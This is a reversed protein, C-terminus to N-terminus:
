EDLTSGSVATSSTTSARTGEEYILEVGSNVYVKYGQGPKLEGIQDINYSPIYGAGTQDKVMVLENVISGLADPPSQTAGPYYPVFNWGESLAIPSDVAIATGSLRLTDASTVYVMYSEGDSWPGIDNTGNEPRYENGSEDRVIEVSSVGGFVSPMDPSDPAVHSSILNWGAALPIAQITTTGDRNNAIDEWSYPLGNGSYNSANAEPWMPSAWDEAISDVVGGAVGGDAAYKLGNYFRDAKINEVGVWANPQPVYTAPEWCMKNNDTCQRQQFDSIPERSYSDWWARLWATTLRRKDDTPISNFVRNWKNGQDPALAWLAWSPQGQKAWLARNKIKANTDWGDPTVGVGPTYSLQFRRIQSAFMRYSADLGTVGSFEGM